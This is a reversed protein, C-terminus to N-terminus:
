ETNDDFFGRYDDPLGASFAGNAAVVFPVKRVRFLTAAVLNRQLKERGCGDKGPPLSAESLEGGLHKLAEAPELCLLRRSVETRDKSTPLLVLHVAYRSSMDRAASLVDGTTPSLPDIFLTIRPGEGLKVAGLGEPPLRSAPIRNSRKLDDLSKIELGNWFDMIRGGVVAYHGEQSILM